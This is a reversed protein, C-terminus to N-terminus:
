NGIPLPLANPELHWAEEVPIGYQQIGPVKFAPIRHSFCLMDARPIVRDMDECCFFTLCGKVKGMRTVRIGDRETLNSDVQVIIFESSEYDAVGWKMNWGRYMAWIEGKQPYIKYCFRTQQQYKVGFSLQELNINCSKESIRFIGCSIPLGERSAKVEHDLVGAPELYTVVVQTESVMKDFRVYQKPLSCNTVGYVAWIQGCVLHHDRVSWSPICCVNDGPGMECDEFCKKRKLDFDARRNADTLVLLANHLPTFAREVFGYTQKMPQLLNALKNFRSQVQSLSSSPQVGLVFYHDVGCGPIVEDNAASLIECATTLAEIDDDVGPSLKRARRLHEMAKSYDEGRMMIEEARRKEALADSKNQNM